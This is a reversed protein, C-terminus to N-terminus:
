DDPVSYTVDVKAPQTTNTAPTSESARGSGGVVGPAVRIAALKLLHKEIVNARYCAAQCLGCGVCQESQVTPVAHGEGESVIAAYRAAECADRCILSAGETECEGQGQYQVCTNADVEALGMRTQRKRELSLAQIAGTPCVQGCNNCTPECGAWDANAWPTWLRDIGQELGLPQLVKAPCVQLCQGCRICLRAFLEEEVSGPPRLVPAPSASGFRLGAAAVAGGAMGVTTGFLFSRRSVQMRPTEQSLTAGRVTVPVPETAAMRHTFHVADVPCVGGCTQCFTCNAPVTGFDDNIADFSCEKACKGCQICHSQTKRETVRMLNFLSFFREAPACM